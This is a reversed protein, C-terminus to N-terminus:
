SSAQSNNNMAQGTIMLEEQDDRRRKKSARVQNLYNQVASQDQSPNTHAVIRKSILSKSISDKETAQQYKDTM